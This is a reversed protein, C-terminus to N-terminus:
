AKQKKTHDLLAWFVKKLDSDPSLEPLLELIAARASPDIERFELKFLKHGVYTLLAFPCEKTLPYVADEPLQMMYMALLRNHNDWMNNGANGELLVNIRERLSADLEMFPVDLKVMKVMMVLCELIESV